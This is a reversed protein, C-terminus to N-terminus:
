GAASPRSGDTSGAGIRAPDAPSGAPAPPALAELYRAAAVAATTADGVATAVQRLYQHRLDGAVFLGPTATAMREDTLVFGHRDREVLDALFTGQPEFGVYVFLGDVALDREIQPARRDRLRVRELSEEGEIAVVEQYWHPEIAPHALLREQIVRQASLEGRRHVLHVKRAYRTLFLAEEAASDGGGVVAVTKGEFLAGDCIACYAVGRGTLEAEGPVGLKRPSGGTTVVVAGAHFREGAATAIEFRGDARRIAAVDGWRIEAGFRRAHRDLREALDEGSISEFGPYDEILETNFLQGGGVGVRDLALVRLKARAGVLAAALGAPGAGVVILDWEEAPTSALNAAIRREASM